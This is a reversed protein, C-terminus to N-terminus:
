CKSREVCQNKANRVYGKICNCAEVCVAPCSVPPQGCRQECKTGCPRFEQNPGCRQAACNVSSICVLAVALILLLTSVRSM